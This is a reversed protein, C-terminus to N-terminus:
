GASRTPSTENQNWSEGREMRTLNCLAIGMHNQPNLNSVAIALLDDRPV